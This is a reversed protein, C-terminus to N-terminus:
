LSFISRSTQYLFEVFNLVPHFIVSVAIAACGLSFIRWTWSSCKRLNAHTHIPSTSHPHIELLHDAKRIGELFESIEASRDLLPNEENAAKERSSEAIILNLNASIIRSDKASLERSLWYQSLVINLMLVIFGFLLFGSELHLNSLQMLTLSFPAVAGSILGINRIQNSYSELLEKRALTFIENRQVLNKDTLSLIQTLNGKLKEELEEM